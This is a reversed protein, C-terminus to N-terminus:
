RLADALLKAFLGACVLLVAPRIAEAGRRLGLHSGTWNGLVSVAGMALGVGVHVRRALLFAALAALNTSLNFIKARSTAGLLDYGCFRSLGLALFTGTGPGFLGDYFGLPLAVACTRAALHGRAHRHSEDAKGFGRRLFLIGALVPLVALMAARIHRPDVATAARAGLFSGVLCAAVPAGLHALPLRQRRQYAAVAATTGISSSLKNTGLVLAPDLGAALYAPLTVLGGGGALADVLGAFFVLAALVALQSPAFGDLTV